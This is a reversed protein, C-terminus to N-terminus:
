AALWDRLAATVAQPQEMTTMHGSNEIVVLRAPVGAAQCSRLMDEHRALPSWADHRGCLLLVPCRLQTLVETADPRHMLANQQAAFIDPTKREIMDLIDAFLPSALQSAHVMGHAWQQGMARMGETRATTLLAMRGAVEREAAEGTALPAIGTDMLAIRTIREPALRAIELAVRGGMSHGALAFRPADLRALVGEAMATLADAAGYDPVICHMGQLAAIQERWIAEDCLLGPLLVLPEREYRYRNGDPSRGGCLMMDRYDAESMGSMTSVMKQVSVGDTAGIKVLFYINGGLAICRNLDRDIVAQRQEPTMPWEQLYASEDAKFRARNEPQMLSMCFQNLWYGKRSQQADFVTTGPIDLYPKDLAM